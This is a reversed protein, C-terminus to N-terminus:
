GQPGWIRIEVRRNKSNAQREDPLAKPKSEGYSLIFMRYLSIGFRDALFRKVANARKEGLLLNYSSPGTQDTHGIIEVLAGPVAELKQGAENLIDEASPNIEYSDFDFNVEGSWIIQYNEFGAAKNLAEVTRNELQQALSRLQQVEKETQDLKSSVASLESKTRAESAAIQEQVYDKNVGCGVLLLLPLMMALRQM